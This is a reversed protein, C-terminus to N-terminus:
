WYNLGGGIQLGNAYGHGFLGSYGVGLFPDFRSGSRGLHYNADLSFLGRAGDGFPRASSGASSLVGLELAFGLRRAPSLSCASCVFETGAGAHIGQFSSVGAYRNVNPAVFLYAHSDQAVATGCSLTALFAMAM